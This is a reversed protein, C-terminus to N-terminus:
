LLIFGVSSAAATSVSRASHQHEQGVDGSLGLEGVGDKDAAEYVQGNM